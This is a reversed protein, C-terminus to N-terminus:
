EKLTLKTGRRKLNTSRGTQQTYTLLLSFCWHQTTTTISCTKNWKDTDITNLFTFMRKTFFANESHVHNKHLHCTYENLSACITETLLLSFHLPEKTTEWHVHKEHPHCTYQNLSACIKQLTEVTIYKSSKDFCKPCCARNFVVLVLRVSTAIYNPCYSVAEMLILVYTLM